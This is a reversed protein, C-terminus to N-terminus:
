VEEIDPYNDKLEELSVTPNGSVYFAQAEAYNEGDCFGDPAVEFWTDGLKTRFTRPVFNEYKDARDELDWATSMLLTALQRFRTAPNEATDLEIDKHGLFLQIGSVAAVVDVHVTQNDTM